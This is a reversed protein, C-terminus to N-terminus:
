NDKVFDHLLKYLTKLRNESSITAYDSTIISQQYLSYIPKKRVLEYLTIIFNILLDNNVKTKQLQQFLNNIKIALSNNQFNLEEQNIGSKCIKFNKLKDINNQIKFDIRFNEDKEEFNYIWEESDLKTSVGHLELQKPHYAKWIPACLDDLLDGKWQSAEKFPYRINILNDFQEFTFDKSLSRLHSVLWRSWTGSRYIRLWIDCHHHNILPILNNFFKQPEELHHIIGFAVVLDIQNNMINPIDKTIDCNISKINNIHNEKCYNNMWTIQSESQDLHFITKAGYKAFILSQFGTGVDIITKNKFFGKSLGRLALEKTIRTEYKKLSEQVDSYVIHKHVVKGFFEKNDM